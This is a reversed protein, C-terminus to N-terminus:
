NKYVETLENLREFILSYHMIGDHPLQGERALHALESMQFREQTVFLEDLYDLFARGISNASYTSEGTIARKLEKITAQKGEFQGQVSEARQWLEALSLNEQQVSKIIAAYIALRKKYINKLVVFDPMRAAAETLIHREALEYHDRPVFLGFFVRESQVLATDKDIRHDIALHEPHCNIQFTYILIFLFYILQGLMM